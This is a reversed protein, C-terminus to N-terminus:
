IDVGALCHVDLVRQIEAGAQEPDTMAFASDLARRESESLPAGLSDLAETVRKVQASLPQLEVGSVMPLVPPEAATLCGTVGTAITFCLFWRQLFLARM